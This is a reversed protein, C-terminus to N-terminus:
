GSLDKGSKNILRGLAEEYVEKLTLDKKLSNRIRKRAGQPTIGEKQMLFKVLSPRSKTLKWQRNAEEFGEKDIRYWNKQYRIGERTLKEFSSGANKVKNKKLQDYLWRIVNEPKDPIPMQELLLEAAEQVTLPFLVQSKKNLLKLCSEVDGVPLERPRKDRPQVKNIYDDFSQRSLPAKWKQLLHAVVDIDGGPAKRIHRRVYEKLHNICDEGTLSDGKKRYTYICMQALWGHR